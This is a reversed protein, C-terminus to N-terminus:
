HGLLFKRFSGQRSQQDLVVIKRRNEADQQEEFVKTLEQIDSDVTQALVENILNHTTVTM